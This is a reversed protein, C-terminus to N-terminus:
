MKPLRKDDTRSSVTYLLTGTSGRSGRAQSEDDKRGVCPANILAAYYYYNQIDLRAKRGAAKHQHALFYCYIKATETERSQVKNGFEAASNTNM